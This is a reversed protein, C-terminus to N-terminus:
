KEIGVIKVDDDNTSNDFHIEYNERIEEKIKRNKVFSMYIIISSVFYCTPSVISPDERKMRFSKLSKLNYVM